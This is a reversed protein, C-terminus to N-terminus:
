ESETRTVPATGEAPKDGADPLKVGLHKQVAEWYAQAFEPHKQLTERYAEALPGSAYPKTVPMAVWKVNLGGKKFAELTDMSGVPQVEGTFVESFSEAEFPLLLDQSTWNSKVMAALRASEGEVQLLRNDLKDIQGTLRKEVDQLGQSLRTESSEITQTLRAEVGSLTATEGEVTRLGTDIKTIQEALRAEVEDLDGTLRNDVEDIRQTVRNESATITESLRNEMETQLGTLHTVAWGIGGLIAVGLTVGTGLVTLVLKTNDSLAMTPERARALM